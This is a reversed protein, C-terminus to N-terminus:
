GSMRVTPRWMWFASARSHGPGASTKFFKGFLQYLGCIVLM